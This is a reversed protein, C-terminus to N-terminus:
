EKVVRYVSQNDGNNIRLFYVGAALDSVDLSQRLSSKGEYDKVLVPAGLMNLLSLRTTAPSLGSAVFNLENHSPNPWAHLAFPNNRSITGMGVTPDTSITFNNNSIDYFVNGISEVKIRCTNITNPLNPANLQYMGSNPASPVLVNYNTGSNYSIYIRVSDCSVPVQDTGNVDWLITQPTNVVWNIGFISPYTLTLPGSDDVVVQTNARCVGGGGMQNDRATLRFNLTQASQPLYEGVTATYNGNFVVSARPFLRTPSVTPTYSRFFPTSGSNWNAGAAGPDAEEWSFTIPDGDPDSGSGTLSFPTGKPVTYNGSGVVVPPQNGTTTTVPCTSGNGANTYYVIEDYSISHFYPISNSALNNIGCIGAYAMITVGSGPEVSTPGNRNGNCNDTIANFSHNGGFQHGMEHAVYDIDYPDGVPSPSGTIGRAKQAATCVCGLNALGGGGTSFTHGIDFNATGISGTIVSQSLNILTNANANASGTFSDTAGNTYLVLTTTPILVLKIALETEYVGDVRNVSTVVKALTQALTPASLGTAAVAYEGTCAIALRYTRLNDGICVGPPQSDSNGNAENKKQATKKQDGQNVVPGTETGRQSPDKVFDSSYYSIYDRTNGVCYPDIFYDGNPTRVMGHFGFENWDLKGNAYVDDIGKVSFTKIDPYSASLEPAMVPSEVVKFKQMSGDPLPLAIIATSEKLKTRSENPASFLQEKLVTGELRYTRYKQPIIQRKGTESIDKENVSSWPKGGTSQARLIGLALILLSGLFLAKKMEQYEKVWIYGIFRGKKRPSECRPAEEKKGSILLAPPRNGV